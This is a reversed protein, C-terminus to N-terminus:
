LNRLMFFLNLDCIGYTNTIHCLPMVSHNKYCKKDSNDINFLLFLKKSWGKVYKKGKLLPCYLFPLKLQVLLSFLLPNNQFDINWKIIFSLVLEVLKSTAYKIDDTTLFVKKGKNSFLIGVLWLQSQPDINYFWDRLNKQLKVARHVM